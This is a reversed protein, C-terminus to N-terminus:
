LKGIIIAKYNYKNTFLSEMRGGANPVKSLKSNNSALVFRIVDRGGSYTSLSLHRSVCVCV